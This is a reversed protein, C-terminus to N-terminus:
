ANRVLEEYKKEIDTWNYKEAKARANTGMRKVESPNDYFYRIKDAIAEPNKIPVVFGDKGDEVCDKAGVGETVIVPTGYSMAELVPIGFGESVSAQIYVASKAYVENKVEESIEGLCKFNSMGGFLMHVGLPGAFVMEGNFTNDRWAKVIYKQGKDITLPSLNFVRFEQRDSSWKDPLDVGHPILKAEVGYKDSM